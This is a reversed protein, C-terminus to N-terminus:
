EEEGAALLRVPTAIYENWLHTRSAEDDCTDLNYCLNGVDEGPYEFRLLNAARRGGEIALSKVDSRFAARVNGLLTLRIRSEPRFFESKQVTYCSIDFEVGRDLARQLNKLGSESTWHYLEKPNWISGYVSETFADDLLVYPEIDGRSYLWGFRLLGSDPFYGGFDREFSWFRHNCLDEVFDNVGKTTLLEYQDAESYLHGVFPEIVQMVLPSPEGQEGRVDYGQRQLDLVAHVMQRWEILTHFAGIPRIYGRVEHDM